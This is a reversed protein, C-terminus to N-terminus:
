FHKSVYLMSFVTIASNVAYSLFTRAMFLLFSGGSIFFAEIGFYLVHFLLLSVLYYSVRNQQPIEDLDYYDPMRFSKKSATMSLIGDRALALPLLAATFLGMVDNSLLDVTLGSVFSVLLLVPKGANLPFNLIFAPFVLIKLYVSLDLYNNCITQVILLFVYNLFIQKGANM